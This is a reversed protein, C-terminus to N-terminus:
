NRVNADHSTIFLGAAITIDLVSYFINAILVPVAEASDMATKSFFCHLLQSCNYREISIVCSM